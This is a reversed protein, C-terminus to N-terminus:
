KRTFFYFFIISICIHLCMNTTLIILIKLENFSLYQAQICNLLLCIMNLYFFFSKKKIIIMHPFYNLIFLPLLKKSFVNKLFNM